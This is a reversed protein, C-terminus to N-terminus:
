RMEGTSCSHGAIELVVIFQINQSYYEAQFQFESIITGIEDAFVAPAYVLTIIFYHIFM